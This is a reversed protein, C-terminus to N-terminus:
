DALDFQQKWVFRFLGENFCVHEAAPLEWINMYLIIIKRLIELDGERLQFDVLCRRTNRLCGRLGALRELEGGRIGTVADLVLELEELCLVVPIWKVCGYVGLKIELILWVSEEQLTKNNSDKTFHGWKLCSIIWFHVEYHWDAKLSSVKKVWVITLTMKTM